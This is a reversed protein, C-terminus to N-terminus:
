KESQELGYVIQSFGEKHEEWNNFLEKAAASFTPIDLVSKNKSRWSEIAKRILSPDLEEEERSKRFKDSFDKVSKRLELQFDGFTVRLTKAKSGMENQLQDIRNHVMDIRDHAPGVIKMAEQQAIARDEAEEQADHGPLSPPAEGVAYLSKMEMNKAVIEPTMDDFKEIVQGQIDQFFGQYLGAEKKSLTLMGKAFPIKSIDNELSAKIYKVLQPSATKEALLQDASDVSVKTDQFDVSKKMKHNKVFKHLKKRNHAEIKHALKESTGGMTAVASKDVYEKLEKEQKKAEKKDDKHSPSRLVQVLKKHESVFEKMPMKVEAKKMSATCIAIASGVDHGQQKVEHVCREHKKPDVGKPARKKLDEVFKKAKNM